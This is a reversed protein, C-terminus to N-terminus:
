AFRPEAVSIISLALRNPCRQGPCGQGNMVWTRPAQGESRQGGAGALQAGHLALALGVVFVAIGVLALRVLWLRLRLRDAAERLPAWPPRASALEGHGREVCGSRAM